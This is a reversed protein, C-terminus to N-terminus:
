AFAYATAGWRPFQVADRTSRAGRKWQVEARRRHLIVNSATVRLSHEAIADSRGQRRVARNELLYGGVVFYPDSDRLPLSFGLTPKLHALFSNCCAPDQKAAVFAYPSM